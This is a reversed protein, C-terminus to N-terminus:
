SKPEYCKMGERALQQAAQIVAERNHGSMRRCEHAPRSCLLCQRPHLGLFARDIAGNATIVDLDWLRGGAETEELFVLDKKVASGDARLAILRYPGIATNLEVYDIILCGRLLLCQDVCHCARTFLAEWPYLQFGGPMNLGVQVVVASRGLLEQQLDFLQERADPVDMM